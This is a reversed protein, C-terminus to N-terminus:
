SLLSKLPHIFRAQLLITKLCTSFRFKLKTNSNFPEYKLDTESMTSDRRISDLIQTIKNANRSTCPVGDICMSTWEPYPEFIESCRQCKLRVTHLVEMFLTSIKQKSKNSWKMFSSYLGWSLISGQSKGEHIRM